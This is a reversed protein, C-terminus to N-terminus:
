RSVSPRGGSSKGESGGHPHDIPNMAVGRVTPRKGVWRNQGAKNKKELFHDKNSGIGSFAYADSAVYVTKGSPMLLAALRKDASFSLLKARSGAASCLAIGSNHKLTINSVVTGTKFKYLPSFCSFSGSNEVNVLGTTGIKSKHPNLYILDGPQSHALVPLYSLFGTGLFRGLGVFASRNPAREIRVIQVTDSKVLQPRKNLMRLRRSFTPNARHRV